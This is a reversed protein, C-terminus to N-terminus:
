KEGYKITDADVIFNDEVDFYAAVEQTKNKFEDCLNRWPWKKNFGLLSGEMEYTLKTSGAPNEILKKVMNQFMVQADLNNTPALNHMKPFYIAEGKPVLVMEEPDEVGKDKQIVKKTNSFPRIISLTAVWEPKAAAIIDKKEQGAPGRKYIETFARTFSLGKKIMLNYIDEANQEHNRKSRKQKKIKKRLDTKLDEERKKRLKPEDNLFIPRDSSKDVRESRQPIGGVNQEYEILEHISDFEIVYGEKVIKAM